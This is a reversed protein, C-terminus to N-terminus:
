TYQTVPNCVTLPQSPRLSKTELTFLDLTVCFYMFVQLLLTQRTIIYVNLWNKLGDESLLINIWFTRRSVATNKSEGNKLKTARFPSFFRKAQTAFLIACTDRRTNPRKINRASLGLSCPFARLKHTTM